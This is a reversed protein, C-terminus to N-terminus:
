GSSSGIHNFYTAVILLVSVKTMSTTSWENIKYCLSIVLKFFFTGTTSPKLKSTLWQTRHYHFPPQTPGSVKQSIFFSFFDRARGPISGRDTPLAAQLRSMMGVVTNWSGAVVFTIFISCLPYWPVIAQPLLPQSRVSLEWSCRTHLIHPVVGRSEQIREHCAIYDPIPNGFDPAVYHCLTSATHAKLMCGNVPSYQIVDWLVVQFIWQWSFMFNWLLAWFIILSQLKWEWSTHIYAVLVWMFNKTKCIGAPKSYLSGKPKRQRKLFTNVKKTKSIHQTCSYFM